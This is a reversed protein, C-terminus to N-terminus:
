EDCQDTIQIEADPSSIEGSSGESVQSGGPNGLESNEGVSDQLPEDSIIEFLSLARRSSPGLWYTATGRVSDFKMCLSEATLEVARYEANMKVLSVRLNEAQRFSSVAITLKNGDFIRTYIDKISATATATTNNM